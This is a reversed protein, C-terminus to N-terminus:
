FFPVTCSSSSPTNYLWFWLAFPLCLEALDVKHQKISMLCTAWMWKYCCTKTLLLQIQLTFFQHGFYLSLYTFHLSYTDILRRSIKCSPCAWQPNCSHQCSLKLSGKSVSVEEKLLLFFLHISGLNDLWGCWIFAILSILEEEIFFKAEKAMAVNNLCICVGFLWMNKMSRDMAICLKAELRMKIPYVAGEEELNRLSVFIFRYVYVNCM